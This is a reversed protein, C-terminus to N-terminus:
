DIIHNIKISRIESLVFDYDLLKLVIDYLENNIYANIIYSNISNMIVNFILFLYDDERYSGPRIIISDNKFLIYVENFPLLSTCLNKYDIHNSKIFNSLLYIKDM